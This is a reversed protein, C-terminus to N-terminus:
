RLPSRSSCRAVLVMLGVSFVRMLQKVGNGLYTGVTEPLSAGNNRLSIMGAIFDHAAGM